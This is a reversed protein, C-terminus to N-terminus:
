LRQVTFLVVILPRKQMAKFQAVNESTHFCLSSNSCCFAPCSFETGAEGSSQNPQESRMEQGSRKKEEGIRERKEERRGEKKREQQGDSDM